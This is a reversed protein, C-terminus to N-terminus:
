VSEIRTALIFRSYARNGPFDITMILANRVDSMSLTALMHSSVFRCACEKMGASYQFLLRSYTRSASGNASTWTYSSAWPTCPNM